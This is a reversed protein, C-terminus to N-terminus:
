IDVATMFMVIIERNPDVGVTPPRDFDREFKPLLKQGVSGVMVAIQDELEPLREIVRESSGDAYTKTSSGTMVKVYGDGAAALALKFYREFAHTDVSDAFAPRLTDPNLAIATINKPVGGVSMSSFKITASKGVRRPEGLLVAGDLEGNGYIVARVPGIEDTNVGIQLFGYALEGPYITRKAAVDPYAVPTALEEYASRKLGGSGAGSTSKASSISRFQELREQDAKPLRDPSRVYGRLSDRNAAVSLDASQRATGSASALTNSRDSTEGWAKYGSTKPQYSLGGAEGSGTSELAALMSASTLGPTSAVLALEASLFAQQAAQRAALDAQLRAREEESLRGVTKRLRSIEESEKQAARVKQYDLSGDIGSFGDVGDGFTSGDSLGNARLLTDFYADSNSPPARLASSALDPNNHLVNVDNSFDLRDMFGGGRVKAQQIDEERAKNITEKAPSGEPLIDQQGPLPASIDDAAPANLIEAKGLVEAPAPSGSSFFRVFAVLSIIAIFGSLGLALRAKPPINNKIASLGFM